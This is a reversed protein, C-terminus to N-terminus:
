PNCCTLSSWTRDPLLSPEGRHSRRNKNPFPWPFPCCVTLQSLSSIGFGKINISMEGGPTYFLATCYTYAARGPTACNTAHKTRSWSATPEFGAVRVMFVSSGKHTGKNKTKCFRPEFGPPCFPGASREARLWSACCGPAAAEAPAPAGTHIGGSPGLLRCEGSSPTDNKTHSFIDKVGM